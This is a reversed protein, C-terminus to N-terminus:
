KRPNRRFYDQFDRYEHVSLGQCALERAHGAEQGHFDSGGVVFLNFAKALRKYYSLQVPDHDPHYVELGQLGASIFTQLLSDDATLGPHAWAATGGAERIADIAEQPSLKFREVYGPMQYGILQDFAQGMTQVYGAEVLTRAVHPRGPAAGGTHRLVASLEITYGLGALKNVMKEARGRRSQQLTELLTKLNHNYPDIFYGLIHIEKGAFETSLEIGPILEISLQSASALAEPLGNVTDHDTVAIALLGKAAADAVVKHPPLLGDSALTHIHLDAAVTMM